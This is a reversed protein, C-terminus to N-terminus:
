KWEGKVIEVRVNDFDAPEGFLFIYSYMWSDTNSSCDLDVSVTSWAGPSNFALKQKTEAVTRLKSEALRFSLTGKGRVDVHFRLVGTFIKGIGYTQILGSLGRLPQLLFDHGKCRLFNAGVSATGDTVVFAPGKHSFHRPFLGNKGEEIDAFDGNCVIPRGFFVKRFLGPGGTAQGNWGVVKGRRVLRVGLDLSEGEVARALPLRIEGPGDVVASKVGERTIFEIKAGRTSRRNLPIYSCLLRDNSYLFRLVTEGVFAQDCFNWMHRDKKPNGDLAGARVASTRHSAAFEESAKAFTLEFFERERKLVAEGRADGKVLAAAEDLQERFRALLGPVEMARGLQWLRSGYCFHDNISTYVSYLRRRYRRMVQWAAGYYLQLAEDEVADFDMDPNWLAQATMYIDIANGVWRETMERGKVVFTGDYPAVEDCWGVNGISRYYRLDDRLLRALPLYWVDGRPLVDTYEYTRVKRGGRRWGALIKRYRENLECRRDGISHLYCRHHLCFDVEASPDPEVGKPPEQFTQYASSYFCVDPAVKKGAAILANALLWFRTSRMGRAAEEPPDLKVCNECECWATSDNNLICFSGADPNEKLMKVLNECMIRVTQPNSTCPQNAMGGTGTATINEPDGCQPRRKGKYLGYYEPHEHFYTDPLLTSFVHGGLRKRSGYSTNKSTMGNRVMWLPTEKSGYACVLNFDRNRFAPNDVIEVQPVVFSKRPTFYEGEPGPLIWRMGGYRKLVSFVGHFLGAKERAVIYLTGADSCLAYGDYRIKAALARVRDPLVGDDAGALALRVNALGDSPVDAVSLKVGTIREIGSKLEDAALAGPAGAAASRVIVARPVGAASGDGGGVLVVDSRVSVAPFFLVAALVIRMRETM